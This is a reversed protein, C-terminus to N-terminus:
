LGFAEKRRVKLNPVLRPVKPIRNPRNCSLHAGLNDVALVKEGIATM